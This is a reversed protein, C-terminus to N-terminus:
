ALQDKSYSEMQESDVVPRHKKVPSEIQDSDGTVRHKKLPSETQDADGIARLSQVVLNHWVPHDGEGDVTRLKIKFSYEKGFTILPRIISRESDRKRMVEKELECLQKGSLGLLAEANDRFVSVKIRDAGGVITVKAVACVHIDGDGVRGCSRCNGDVVEKFCEREGVKKGCAHYFLPANKLDVDVFRGTLEYLHENGAESVELASRLEPVTTPTAAASWASPSLDTLEEVLGEHWTLLDEFGNLVKVSSLRRLVGDYGDNVKRIALAELKLVAGQVVGSPFVTEKKAGWGGIRITGGGAGSMSSDQFAVGIHWITLSKGKTQIVESEADRIVLVVCDVLVDGADIAQQISKTDVEAIVPCGRDAIVSGKKDMILDVNATGVSSEHQVRCMLGSIDYTVGDKLVPGCEEAKKGWLSVVARTKEDDVCRCAYYVDELRHWCASVFVDYFNFVFIHNVSCTFVGVGAVCCCGRM